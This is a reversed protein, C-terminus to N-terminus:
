SGRSGLFEEITAVFAEARSITERAKDESFVVGYDYTAKLREDFADMLHRHMEVPLAGTKAFERGFAGIVASHKSYSLGRSAMAACAAHFMAYYADGVANNPLGERLAGRAAALSEHARVLMAQQDTSM